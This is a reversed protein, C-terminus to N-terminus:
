WVLLLREGGAPRSEVKTRQGAIADALADAAAPLHRDTRTIAVAHAEARLRETTIMGTWLPTRRSPSADDTAEAVRWLRIVLRTRADLPKIRTLAPPQGEDFRPLVPLSAIPTTPLLWLLTASSMWPAPRVWGGKALMDSMEDRTAIWQVSFPEEAGGDMETRAAPLRQWAGGRWEDISLIRTTTAPAYLAMDRAHHGDAYTGGVLVVTLSVILILPTARIAGERVHEIYAIGLLAIWALGLGFSAIVDSLWHVGLYVRSFGVLVAIFAAAVAFATQKSASKGHGLLFALFGFVVM